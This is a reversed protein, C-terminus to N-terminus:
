SKGELLAEGVGRHNACYWRSLQGEIFYGFPADPMGCEDCPHILVRAGSPLTRITAM